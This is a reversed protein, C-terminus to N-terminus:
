CKEGINLGHMTTAMSIMVCGLTWNLDHVATKLKNPLSKSLTHIQKKHNKCNLNTFQIQFGLM